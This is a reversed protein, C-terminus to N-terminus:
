GLVRETQSINALSDRVDGFQPPEMQPWINMNLLSISCGTGVNFTMGAAWPTAAAKLKAHVV